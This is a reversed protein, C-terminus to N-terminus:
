SSTKQKKGVAEVIELCRRLYVRGNRIEMRSPKWFKIIANRLDPIKKIERLVRQWRTAAANGSPRGRKKKANERAASKKDEGEGDGKVDADADNDADPLRGSIMKDAKSVTLSGARVKEITDNDGSRLVRGARTVSEASTGLDKFAQMTKPSKSDHNQAVIMAIQGTTLHRRNLNNLVLRAKVADTSAGDVTIWDSDTPKRGELFMAALRARGDILRGEKDKVLKTKLGHTKISQRLASFALPSVHPIGLEDVAPHIRVQHKKLTRDILEATEENKKVQRPVAPKTSAPKEIEPM